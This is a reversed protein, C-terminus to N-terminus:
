KSLFNYGEWVIKQKDYKIEYDSTVLLDIGGDKNRYQGWWVGIMKISSPDNLDFSFVMSGSSGNGLDFQPIILQRAISRQNQEIITISYNNIWYNMDQTEFATTLAFESTEKIDDTNSGNYLIVKELYTITNDIYPFGAIYIGSNVLPNKLKEIDEKTAFYKEVSLDNKIEHLRLWDIFNSEETPHYILEIYDICGNTIFFENNQEIVDQNNNTQPIQRKLDIVKNEGNLLNININWDNKNTRSIYPINENVSNFYRIVVGSLKNHDIGDLSNSLISKVVHLNTGFVYENIGDNNQDQTGKYWATGSLKSDDKKIFSISITNWISIDRIEKVVPNKTDVLVINNYNNSRVNRDILVFFNVVSLVLTSFIFIIFFSFIKKNFKLM